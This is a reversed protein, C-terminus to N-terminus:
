PLTITQGDNAQCSYTWVNAAIGKAISRVSGDCMAVNLIGAHASQPYAGNCQAITPAVQFVTGDNWPSVAAFAPGWCAMFGTAADLGDNMLNGCYTQPLHCVQYRESLMFTNSSGDTIDTEIRASSGFVNDAIPNNINAAKVMLDGFVLFNGTYNGPVWGGDLLHAGNSPDSPCLFVKPMAQLYPKTVDSRYNLKGGGDVCSNYLAQQEIYNLLPTFMSATCWPATPPNGVSVWGFYPSGPPASITLDFPPFCGYVGHMNHLGIAMQKFNNQCQARNAAERVKQVAPLLLGILVAIIAIVVLLEILTFGRRSSFRLM